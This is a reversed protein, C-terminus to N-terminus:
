GAWGCAGPQRGARYAVQGAAWLGEVQFAPWTVAGSRGTDRESALPCAEDETLSAARSCAAVLQMRWLRALV